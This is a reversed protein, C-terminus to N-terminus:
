VINMSKKKQAKKTSIFCEEVGTGKCNPCEVLGKANEAIQVLGSGKCRKCIYNNKTKYKKLKRETM